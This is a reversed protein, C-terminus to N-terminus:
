GGIQSMSRHPRIFHVKGIQHGAWKALVGREIESAIEDDSAGGRVLTRLDFEDVAFLCNRLQGEATLRVRDCDGCFAQTVSAIVGVEGQGDLYRFRQAPEHGRQIPELPFEKSIAEVIEKQSVVRDNTWGEDADLPMWEIFRVVVGRERGFRAFDVLEDDNIGRMVVANIKVPEFGADIAADIGDLVTDLEDRRTLELFRDRQLSDLSINIRRLGADKLLQAHRRLTSGNTTMAVDTGLKALRAVLEDLNARVLPEGGTLRISNVGFTDVMIRAVQEIEEFTLIDARDLWELGEEPMCYTCRFNCRDTVSIRLDRHVRGFTDTLSRPM